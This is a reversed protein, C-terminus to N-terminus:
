KPKHLKTSRNKRPSREDGVQEGVTMSDLAAAYADLQADDLVHAYAPATIRTSAHGLQASVTPLAVGARLALSASTRRMRHTGSLTKEDVGKLGARDAIRQLAQYGSKRALPQGGRGPLIWSAADGGREVVDAAYLASLAASLRPTISVRRRRDSKPAKVHREAGKGQWVAREVRIRRAEFDIDTWRLGRIEGIRLGGDLGLLVLVRERDKTCAALLAGAQPPTFTDHKPQAQRPPKVGLAANVELLGGEVAHGLIRRLLALAQDARRPAKAAKTSRMWADVATRTVTAATETGFMPSVWGKYLGNALETTSPQWSPTCARFYDAALEHVTSETVAVRVVQRGAAVRRARERRADELSGPVTLTRATGTGGPVRVEYPCSCRRRPKHDTTSPCAVRHARHVGGEIPERWGRRPRETM